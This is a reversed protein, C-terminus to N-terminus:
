VLAGRFRWRWFLYRVLKGLGIFVLYAGFFWQLDRGRLPLLEFYELPVLPLGLFIALGVLANVLASAMTAVTSSAGFLMWPGRLRRAKVEWETKTWLIGNLLGVLSAVAAILERKQM